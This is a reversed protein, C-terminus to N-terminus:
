NASRDLHFIYCHNHDTVLTGKVQTSVHGKETDGMLKSLGFDAVKAKLNEDLLINTSKIDGHIIPPDALEHLYALGRASGLTIRLRKKWDLYSGRVVLNERLTGGAVFEYVLMQERQEFCFGILSVLNRHHVRSLLEIENKFEPAGQMSGSQARKIAVRIGDVLTGKYVKGYGGAGIEYSDSFNDTCSQLEEFSFFRTGKLQPAGGSDKQTTGWSAFPNAQVKLEQNRRKQRLAFLGVFILAIVLVGGGAAIGAIAGTSFKTKKADPVSFPIYVDAIFSYPGFKAPPKYYQRGLLSGLLIVESHNFSTGSSPFLEVQVQIYGNSDFHVKSLGVAGSRLKLDTWLSTELQQFTDSDTLDKFFPARFVMKGSYAYACGCNAPNQNQTSPCSNASACKDMSTRYPIVIQPKPSCFPGGLLSEYGCAPNNRLVLAKKYDTTVDASTISNTDLDVSQLKQSINGSMDLKGSLLNKSLVVEQLQPLTFLAKPVEGILNGSSISVAILSTLTTFWNPTVSSTFSNNSLDVVNLMSMSSLDPLSGTLQNNALNLENLKVLNTMNPVAGTLKNSDLRLVTLSNISGIESPIPGSFQNSDFLIHILSMNSDFLGTLTGSLKNKNFHFHQAATLMNLGPTTGTSIPVSGTLQNNALDLWELRSLLGFSAPITGTFNNSNLAMFSLKLLNGLEKPIGGNFSCGAVILTELQALSGISAPLPGSLHPNFSLDLSVLQSLQGVSDSLTGQLNVGSVMLVTIRGNSCQIGDWSGDCPDGSSTWTSPYNTWQSMVSRLASVDQPNTDCLGAPVNSALVLLLIALRTAWWRKRAEM